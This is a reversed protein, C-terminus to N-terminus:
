ELSRWARSPQRQTEFRGPESLFGRQRLGRRIVDSARIEASLQSLKQGVGLSVSVTATLRAFM